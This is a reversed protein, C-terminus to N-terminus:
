CVDLGLEIFGVLAEVGDAEVVVGDGEVDVRRDVGYLVRGLAFGVELLDVGAGLLRDGVGDAGEVVGIAEGPAEALDLEIGVFELAVGFPLLEVHFVAHDLDEAVGVVAVDARAFSVGRAVVAGVEVLPHVDVDRLNRCFRGM